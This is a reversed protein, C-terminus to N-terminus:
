AGRLATSPRPWASLEWCSRAAPRTTSRGSVVMEAPRAAHDFAAVFVHEGERPHLPGAHEGERPPISGAAETVRLLDPLCRGPLRRLEGPPGTRGARDAAQDVRRLPLPADARLLPWVASVDLAPVGDFGLRHAVEPATAPCLRDPTTTELLVFDTGAGASLLAARGAAVALDGTSMGPEAMRRRAIGTRSRIWADSTDLHAALDVNSVVREPLCAGLGSIVATSAM